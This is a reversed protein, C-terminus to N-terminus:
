INKTVLNTKVEKYTPQTHTFLLTEIQQGSCEAFCEIESCGCLRRIYTDLESLSLGGFQKEICNIIHLTEFPLNVPDNTELKYKSIHLKDLNIDRTTKVIVKNEIAKDVSQMVSHSAVSFNYVSYDFLNLNQHQTIQENNVDFYEILFVYRYVKERLIEEDFSCVAKIVEQQRKLKKEENSDYINQNM